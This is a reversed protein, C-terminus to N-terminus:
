NELGVRVERWGRGQREYSFLSTYPLSIDKQVFHPLMFELCEPLISDSENDALNKKLSIASQLQQKIYCSYSFGGPHSRTINLMQHFIAM